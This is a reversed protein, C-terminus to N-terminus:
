PRPHKLPLVQPGDRRGIPGGQLFTRALFQIREGDPERRLPWHGGRDQSSDFEPLLPCRRGLLLLSLSMGRGVTRSFCELYIPKDVRTTPRPPDKAQSLSEDRWQAAWTPNPILRLPHPFYEFWGLCGVGM